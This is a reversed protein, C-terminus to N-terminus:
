YYGDWQHKLGFPSRTKASADYRLYTTRCASSSGSSGSSRTSKSKVSASKSSKSKVSAHSRAQDITWDLHRNRGGTTSSHSGGPVFGFEDVIAPACSQYSAVHSHVARPARRVVSSTSKYSPPPQDALLMNSPVFPLAHQKCDARHDLFARHSYSTAHHDHADQAIWFTLVIHLERLTGMHSDYVTSGVRALISRPTLQPATWVDELSSFGLHEFLLKSIIDVDTNVTSAFQAAIWEPLSMLHMLPAPIDFDSPANHSDSAGTSHGPISGNSLDSAVSNVDLNALSLETPTHQNNPSRSRTHGLHALSAFPAHHGLNPQGTPQNARDGDIPSAPEGRQQQTPCTGVNPPLPALQRERSASDGRWM